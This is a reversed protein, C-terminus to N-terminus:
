SAIRRDLIKEMINVALSESEESVKKKAAAIQANVEADANNKLEAIEEMASQFIKGAEHNGAVEHEKSLAFAKDKVRREQSKIESMADQYRKETVNIESQIGEVYVDREIMTKRLPQFMIRNMVFLFILFSILQVFLTENISILAMNSVIQM